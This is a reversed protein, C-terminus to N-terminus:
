NCSMALREESVKRQNQQANNVNSNERKFAHLLSTKGTQEDGLLM